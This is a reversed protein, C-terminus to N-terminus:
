SALLSALRRGKGLSLTLLSPLVEAPLASTATRFFSCALVSPSCSHPLLSQFLPIIYTMSSYKPVHISRTSHVPYFSQTKPKWPSNERHFLSPRCVPLMLALIVQALSHPAQSPFSVSYGRMVVGLCLPVRLPLTSDTVYQKTMEPKPKTGSSSTENILLLSM